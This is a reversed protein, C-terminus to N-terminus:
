ELNLRKNLIYHSVYFYATSLIIKILIASILCLHMAFNPSAEILDELIISPDIELTESIAVIFSLIMQSAFHFLFYVGVARRVRHKSSTQGVSICGYILLLQEGASVIMLLIIEIIAFILHGGIESIGDKLLYAIAKLIEALYDFECIFAFSLTSVILTAAQITVGGAVKALLHEAPTVPLTLTLYGEGTFMNKHFRTICTVLTLVASVTLAAIYAFITSGFMLAYVDTESIILQVFRGFLAIGLVAIQIPLWQRTYSLLEHKYLKKFM